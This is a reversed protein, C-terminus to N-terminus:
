KTPVSEADTRFLVRRVIPIPAAGQAVFADHFQRLTAGKKKLYEDRLKQIELKGLTYYLYTPNYAGRRAEEYANAPEFFGQEVFFRAGDEVSMGKTHLKIGVVYRCDRLLAEQLQTLRRAGFGAGSPHRRM